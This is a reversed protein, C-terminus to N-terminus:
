LSCASPLTSPLLVTSSLAAVNPLLDKRCVVIATIDDDHHTGEERKWEAAADALSHGGDLKTRAIRTRMDKNQANIQANIEAKQRQKSAAVAKRAAQVKPGLTKTDAAGTSAIRAQIAKNEAHLEAHAEDRKREREEAADM